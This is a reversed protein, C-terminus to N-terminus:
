VTAATPHSVSLSPLDIVSSVPVAYSSFFGSTTVHFHATFADRFAVGQNGPRNLAITRVGEGTLESKVTDYQFGSM